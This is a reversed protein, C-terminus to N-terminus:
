YSKALLEITHLVKTSLGAKKVAHQLQMICAPCGTCLYDANIQELEQMKPQVVKQSLNYHSLNFSGACGCCKDATALEVFSNQGYFNKLLARPNQRGGEIKKLHCPDHYTIVDQHGAATTPPKIKLVKVLFNSVDIVKNVIDTSQNNEGILAPYELLTGLCTACDTIIYDMPISNFEKVNRLALESFTQYDGSALAPIGCCGQEPIIVEVNHAKLIKLLSHGIQPYIYNTMCGTFYGVTMVKNEVKNIRSVNKRFEKASLYPLLAEKSGLNGPLKELIKTGRILKQFGCQQYLYLLRALLSLRGGKTLFHEFISRKIIPLGKTKVLDKRAERVIKDGQVKNPCNEGCNGCLLCLSFIEEMASNWELKDNQLLEVLEIKGRAVMHELGTASYLPCFAQCAGCRSCRNLM